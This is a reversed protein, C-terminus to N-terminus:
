STHLEAVLDARVMNLFSKPQESSCSKLRIRVVLVELDTFPLLGIDLSSFLPNTTLESHSLTKIGKIYETQDLTIAKTSTDQIHRVGCNTFNNWEIKLKGFVKEVSALIWEVTKRDGAIKLDDVHKTMLALLERVKNHPHRGSNHSSDGTHAEGAVANDKKHLFCLENDVTCQQM